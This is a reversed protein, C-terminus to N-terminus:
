ACYSSASSAPYSGTTTCTSASLRGVICETRSTAGYSPAVEALGVERHGIERGVDEHEAAADGAQRGRHPGTPVPHRDRHEGLALETPRRSAVRLTADGGREIGRVVRGLQVAGVRQGGAAAQAVRVRYPYQGVLSRGPHALQDRETRVEVVDVAVAPEGTGALATVRHRPHHVGPAVGGAGLDLPREDGRDVPRTRVDPVAPQRGLQDDLLSPDDADGGFPGFPRALHAGAM